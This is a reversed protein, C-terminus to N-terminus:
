GISEINQQYQILLYYIYQNNQLTHLFNVLARTFNKDKIYDIYTKKFAKCTILKKNTFTHTIYVPWSMLYVIKDEM